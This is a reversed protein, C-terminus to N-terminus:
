KRSFSIGFQSGIFRERLDQVQEFNLYGNLGFARIYGVRYHVSMLSLLLTPKTKMISRGLTRDYEPYRGIGVELAPVGFNLRKWEAVTWYFGFATHLIGNDDGIALGIHRKRDFISRPQVESVIKTPPRMDERVDSIDFNELTEGSVIFPPFTLDRAPLVEAAIAPPAAVFLFATVLLSRFSVGM